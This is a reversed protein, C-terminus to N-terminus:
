TGYELIMERNGNELENVYYSDVATMDMNKVVVRQNYEQLVGQFAEMSGSQSGFHDYKLEGEETLAIPYQWGTIRIEAVAPVRNSGYQKVTTTGAIAQHGLENVTQCFLAIDTILEKYTSVHSM